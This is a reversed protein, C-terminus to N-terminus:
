VEVVETMDEKNEGRELRYLKGTVASEMAEDHTILLVFDVINSVKNRLTEALDEVAKKDLNHTPEDLLLIKMGPTLIITMAIRLALVASMREGGSVTGEVNMWRNDINRLQLIYDGEEVSIQIGTYDNYPYISEWLDDMVNNISEIFQERLTIQTNELVRKFRDLEPATDQMNEIKKKNEDILAKQEEIFALNKSKEKHISKLSSLKELDTSYLKDKATFTKTKEEFDDPRFRLEEINIKAQKQQDKLDRKEQIHRLVTKTAEFRRIEEEIKDIKEQSFDQLLQTFQKKQTEQRAKIKEILEVKEFIDKELNIYKLCEQRDEEHKKIEYKKTSFEKNITVLSNELESIQSKKKETITIKKENDLATNCTPCKSGSKELCEISATEEEIKSQVLAEEKVLKEQATKLTDIADETKKLQELKPKKTELQSCKETEDKLQQDDLRIKEKIVALDKESQKQKEQANKLREIQKEIFEMTYSEAEQMNKYNELEKTIHEIRTTITIYRERLQEFIKRKKGLTEVENQLNDRETKIEKLRKEFTEIQLELQSIHSALQDLNKTKLMNELSETHSKLDQATKTIRNRLTITNSRATEFRDIKLLEDIKKMRQGRPIQLFQDLKNQECYIVQAFTNYDIGLIKEIYETVRQSAPSELLKGECRLESVSTGKSREIKRTIQYTKRNKIFELNVEATNHKTFIDTIVNELKIRKQQVSPFTGFFAFSIADLVSSKGSGMVGLLANIGKPFKFTSDIHTQWNHLRISRIM